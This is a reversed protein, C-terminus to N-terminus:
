FGKNCFTEDFYYETCHVISVHPTDYHGWTKGIKKENKSEFDHARGLGALQTLKVGYNLPTGREFESGSATLCAFFAPNSKKAHAFTDQDLLDIM